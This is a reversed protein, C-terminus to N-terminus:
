GLDRMLKVEGLAEELETRSLGILPVEKLCVDVGSRHKARFVLGYSGRGLLAGRRYKGGGVVVDAM